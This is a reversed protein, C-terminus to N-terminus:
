ALAKTVIELVDASKAQTKVNELAERMAIQRTPEFRRWRDLARALRAAVQPNIADLTLVQESWFRYGSGNAKHFEALNGTFFAGLLSRVKNPNKLSFAPHNMLAQVKPLAQFHQQAQVVFWKDMALAENGYEAEFHVLAENIHYSPVQALASLASLKETMNNAIKVQMLASDLALAQGTLVFYQLATGALARRGAASASVEYASDLATNSEYTHQWDVTLANALLEKLSNRAVRIYDPNVVDLQEALIGETPLTLLLEKYSADLASDNLASKFVEILPAASEASVAKQAKAADVLVRSALQQLADWRNFLDSDYTALFALNENSHPYHLYIPASFDRLLSAIPSHAVNDFIFSQEGETLELLRATGEIDKGDAGLLGVRIPIHFPEKSRQKFSLTFRKNSEDFTGLVDVKPTGAHSYWRSFQSFDRKNADAISAIFDDCTVAQGDHRKFYLDMGARFGAEGVLTHLMRIVEAGKEYVTVTYFNNIEEYSDPRIPHAMPGADEPFQMTRLVRVDDIRKVSRASQKGTEAVLLDASFEQDRFVTLGEKLTLQFWDRCTVRNGTWNHFYEHGVVSEVNAFDADTALWPNAFVFKTNFINLGKNEMAGMNFDSVAVIMFRELDLELGYRKEDWVISKVLSDLAHQTKNENGPEVWVQLLADKGSPQKITTETAVLQGAVMAFLYSPKPFPDEWRAWHWGPQEQSDGQGILNGNSLLVPCLAKEAHLTVTYRAMVDPRDLFYTIKRFGEAECQTFYNGNSQYLGMLSSNDTPNIETECIIECHDDRLVLILDNGDQRSAESGNVLCRILRQGDGSLRLESAQGAGISPQRRINSTAIVRTHQANLVFDLSIQDVIANPPTYDRRFSTPM